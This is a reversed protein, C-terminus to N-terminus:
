GGTSTEDEGELSTQRDPQSYYQEMIPKLADPIGQFQVDVQNLKETVAEVVQPESPGDDGKWRLIYDTALQATRSGVNEVKKFFTEIGFENSDQALRDIVRRRLEHDTTPGILLSFRIKGEKRQIIRFVFQFWLHGSKNKKRSIPPLWQEWGVPLFAISGSGSHTITWRSDNEIVEHIQRAIPAKGSGVREFILDLAQRHNQYIRQCLEDIKPDEMFRIGILRLYHDLFALVDQGISERNTQRVRSLAQHIDDYTYPVWGSDTAEDGDPTLFVCLRPIDPFHQVLTDRYRNLQNARENADVKNEIAIVFAPSKCTILLDINQWERRVDVGALEAGDLDIPNLPRESRPSQRLLDMLVASFFLSGQGHSESPDLLWALFNSHRIEQRTIRLADFINFRGIHQELEVLDENDVIFRELAQGHTETGFDSRLDDTDSYNM